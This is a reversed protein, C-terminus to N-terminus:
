VYVTRLPNLTHEIGRGLYGFHQADTGLTHIAEQVPAQQFGRTSQPVLPNRFSGNVLEDGFGSTAAPSRTSTMRPRSVEPHQHALSLDVLRQTFIWRRSKKLRWTCRGTRGSEMTRGNGGGSELNCNEGTLGLNLRM